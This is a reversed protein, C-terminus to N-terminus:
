FPYDTDDQQQQTAFPNSGEETKFKHALEPFNTKEWRKVNLNEYTKDNYESTENKVAVLVPKGLFDQFLEDISSYQKGQQLQAAAGITNFFKMNYKGTAKAKWIRHFVIQNKYPQDIDNRVTLRVDVFETGSQTASEEFKTIVVEYKGDKIGGEFTDNMDLTFNTM